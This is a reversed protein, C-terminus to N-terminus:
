LYHAGAATSRKLRLRPRKGPELLRAWDHWAQESILPNGPRVWERPTGTCGESPCRLRVRGSATKSAEIQRGSFSKECLVCVRRDDLSEWPHAPDGERLADLKDEASLSKRLAM